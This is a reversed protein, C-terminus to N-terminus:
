QVFDKIRHVRFNWMVFDMTFDKGYQKVDYLRPQGPVSLPHCSWIGYPHMEVESCFQDYTDKSIKKALEFLDPCKKRSVYGYVSRQKVRANPDVNPGFYGNYIWISGDINIRDFSAQDVTIEPKEYPLLDKTPKPKKATM